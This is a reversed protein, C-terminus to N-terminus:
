CSNDASCPRACAHIGLVLLLRGRMLGSGLSALIVCRLVSTLACRLRHGPARSICRLFEDCSAIFSGLVAPANEYGHVMRACFQSPVDSSCRMSALAATCGGQLTPPLHVRVGQRCEAAGKCPAHCARHVRHPQRHGEPGLNRQARDEGRAAHAQDLGGGRAFLPKGAQGSKHLRIVHVGQAPTQPAHIRRPHAHLPWHACEAQRLEQALPAV